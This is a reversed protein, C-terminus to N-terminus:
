ERLCHRLLRGLYAVTESKSPFASHMLILDKKFQMNCDNSCYLLKFM